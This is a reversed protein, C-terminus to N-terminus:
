DGENNYEQGAYCAGVSTTTINFFPTPQISLENLIALLEPDFAEKIQLLLSTREKELDCSNDYGKM